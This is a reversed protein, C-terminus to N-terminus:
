DNQQLAGESNSDRARKYRREVQSAIVDVNEFVDKVNQRVDPDGEYSSLIKMADISASRLRRIAKAFVDAKDEVMEYAVRLEGDDALADLARPNGLVAVLKGLDPNQTRVVAAKSGQGYLWTMFQKLEPAKDEPVSESTLIQSVPAEIGLYRRVSPSPLATYLHSFYLNRKEIDRRDFGHDEAARLVAYANVLRTVTSHSDGLKSSIEDIDRTERYWDHAFRAKAYSDWKFAGNIHKFGIFERATTRDPVVNVTIAEPESGANRDEPPTLGTLEQLRPDRIVKLAALRRNGEIVTGDPLAILPEYNIWGSNSISNVLESLDAVEALELLASDQNEAVRDPMRPNRPDLLLDSVNRTELNM